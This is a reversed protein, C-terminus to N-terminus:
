RRHKTIWKMNVRAYVNVAHRKFQRLDHKMTMDNMDYVLGDHKEPYRGAMGPGVTGYVLCHGFAFAMYLFGFLVWIM